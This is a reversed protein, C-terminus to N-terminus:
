SHCPACVQCQPMEKEEIGMHLMQRLKAGIEQPRADSQVERLLGPAAIGPDDSSSVM